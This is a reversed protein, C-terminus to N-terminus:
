PDSQLGNSKLTTFIVEFQVNYIIQVHGYPSVNFCYGNISNYILDKWFFSLGISVRAVHMYLAYQSCLYHFAFKDNEIM